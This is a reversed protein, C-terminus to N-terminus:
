ADAKKALLDSSSDESLEKKPQAPWLSYATFAVMNGVVGLCMLYKWHGVPLSEMGMLLALAIAAVKNFNAAFSAFFPSLGGVINYLLLNYGLAWIGSLMVLVVTSPSLQAIQVLVSFDTAMDQGPYSVPHKILYSPLLLLVVIPIAMYLLSDISNLKFGKGLIVVVILELSSFLLSCICLCLGLTDSGGGAEIEAATKKEASKSIVVLSACIVGLLMAGVKAPRIDVSGDDFWKRFCLQLLLSILPSTSRVMVNVSMDLLSLSFNNLAINLTFCVALAMVAYIQDKSVIAQPRYAWPTLQSALIALALFLFGVLQQIATLILPAQFGRMNLEQSVTHNSLIAKMYLNMFSQAGFFLLLQALTRYRPLIVFVGGGLVLALVPVGLQACLEASGTYAPEEIATAGILMGGSELMEVSLNVQSADGTVLRHGEEPGAPIGARGKRDMAAASGAVALLVCCRAVSMVVLM